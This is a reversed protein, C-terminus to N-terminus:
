ARTKRRPKWRDEVSLAKWGHEPLALKERMLTLLSARAEGGLQARHLATLAMWGPITPDAAADLLRRVVDLHGAQVARALATEGVHCQDHANVDAGVSLILNVLALHGRGACIGLPTNGVEDFAQLFSRGDAELLATVMATDGHESAWHLATRGHLPKTQHRPRRALWEAEMTAGRRLLHELVQPRRLFAATALPETEGETLTEGRAIAEDIGAIAFASDPHCLADILTHARRLPAALDPQTIPM